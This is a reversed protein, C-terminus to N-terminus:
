LKKMEINRYWVDAGHDQLVIHGTKFTGFDPWEKFKSGAVLKKWNDDWLTTSLVQEGNITFDLKGNNCVIEVQNWEGAPKVVEKSISILDYLDGARHKILKGDANEKNDVVQCEPGTYYSYKYKATDEKVLFLIGSNGGKSIKWELKLDFNTYEEDSVMDGGNKSQWDGKQSADLHLVGDEAKWAAGAVAKGYAHWGRTTKGDFLPTFGTDKAATAAATTDEKNYNKHTSSKCASLAIGGALLALLPKNM